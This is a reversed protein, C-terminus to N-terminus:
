VSILQNVQIVLTEQILKVGYYKVTMMRNENLIIFIILKFLINTYSVLNQECAASEPGFIQQCQYKIDYMQLSGPFQARNRLEDNFQEFTEDFKLYKNNFDPNKEPLNLM